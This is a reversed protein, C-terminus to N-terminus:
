GLDDHSNWIIEFTKISTMNSDRDNRVQVPHNPSVRMDDLYASTPGSKRGPVLLQLSRSLHPVAAAALTKQMIYRHIM